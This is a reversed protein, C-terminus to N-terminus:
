SSAPAAATAWRRRLPAAQFGGRLFRPELVKSNHAHAQLQLLQRASKASRPARKSTLFTHIALSIGFTPWHVACSVRADHSSIYIYAMEDGVGAVVDEAPRANLAFRPMPEMAAASVIPQTTSIDRM